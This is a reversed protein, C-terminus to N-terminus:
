EKRVVAQCPVSSLLLQKEEISSWRSIGAVVAPPAVHVTMVAELDPMSCGGEV